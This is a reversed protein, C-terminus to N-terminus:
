NVRDNRLRKGSQCGRLEISVTEDFRGTQITAAEEKAAAAAEKALDLERLLDVEEDSAGTQPWRRQPVRTTELLRNAEEVKEVKEVKKM